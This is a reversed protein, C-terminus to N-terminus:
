IKSNKTHVVYYTGITFLFVRINENHLTGLDTGPKLHPPLNAQKLLLYMTCFYYYFYYFYYVYYFYYFYYNFYM